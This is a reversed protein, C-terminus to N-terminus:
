NALLTADKVTYPGDSGPFLKNFFNSRNDPLRLTDDCSHGECPQDSSCLAEYGCTPDMCEGKVFRKITWQLFLRDVNAHHYMFTPDNPGFLDLMDGQFGFSFGELAYLSMM